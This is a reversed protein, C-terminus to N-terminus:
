INSKYPKRGMALRKPPYAIIDILTVPKLKAFELSGRKERNYIAQLSLNGCLAAYEAVSVLKQKAM